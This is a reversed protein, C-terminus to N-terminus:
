MYYQAIYIQADSMNLASVLRTCTGNTRTQDQHQSM